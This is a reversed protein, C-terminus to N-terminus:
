AYLGSAISFRHIFAGFIQPVTQGFRSPGGENMPVVPLTGQNFAQGTRSDIGPLKETDVSGFRFHSLSPDWADFNERSFYVSLRVAADKAFKDPV